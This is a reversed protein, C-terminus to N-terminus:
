LLRNRHEALYASQIASFPRPPVAQIVHWREIVENSLSPSLVLVGDDAFSILYRDFLLDIHPALMLGNAGDLRQQDDADRWPKIHSARLFLEDSVGTVRCTPDLALVRRRFLGQGVRAKSLQLRLTMPLNNKAESRLDDLDSLLDEKQVVQEPIRLDPQGLELLIRGLTDSISALYIGQNGNGDSRIPSYKTPLNPIIRDLHRKPIIPFQLPSFLVQLFWGADDWSTPVNFDPKPAESAPEVVIGAYRIAGDAYSFVIDGSSAFRMNEYSQNFTGDKKRLPSWLFDGAVEARGTQKHNVWWFAMRLGRLM